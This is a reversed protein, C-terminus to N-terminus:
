QKPNNISFTQLNNGDYLYMFDKTLYLDKVTNESIPLKIPEVSNETILFLETGKTVFLNTDQLVLNEYGDSPKESLLSGYSNFIRIKQETLVACYNFNSSQAILKGAFPQSVTVKRQDRYNYLELQQTDINFIWLCNSGANTATSVTIFEPLTNFNIREIVSLKNDLLIVTNTDEYFMVIKLPNIIDVSSINGLQLDNFVFSGDPGEKHLVRDKVFYNNKYSDIGIFNSAVLPTKSVPTFEQGLVFQTFILFLFLQKM